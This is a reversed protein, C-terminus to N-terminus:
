FVYVNKMLGNNIRSWAMCGQVKQLQPESIKNL